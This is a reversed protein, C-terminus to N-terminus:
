ETWPRPSLPHTQDTHPFFAVCSVFLKGVPNARLRFPSASLFFTDEREERRWIRCLAPFEGHAVSVRRSREKGQNEEAAGGLQHTSFLRGTIFVEDHTRAPSFWFGLPFRFRCPSTWFVGDTRASEKAISDIEEQPLDVQISASAFVGWVLAAPSLGLEGWFLRLAFSDAWVPWFCLAFGKPASTNPEGKLPLPTDMTQTVTFFGSRGSLGIM